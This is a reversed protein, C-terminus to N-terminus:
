QAASASGSTPTSASDPQRRQRPDGSAESSSDSAATVGATSTIAEFGPAPMTCRIGSASGTMKVSPRRSARSCASPKSQRRGVRAAAAVPKPSASSRAPETFAYRATRRSSQSTACTGFTAWSTRPMM